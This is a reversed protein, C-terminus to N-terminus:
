FTQYTKQVSIVAIRCSLLALTHKLMIEGILLLEPETMCCSISSWGWDFYYVQPDSPLARCAPTVPLGLLGRILLCNLYVAGQFQSLVSSVSSFLWRFACVSVSILDARSGLSWPLAEAWRAARQGRGEGEKEEMQSGFGWGVCVSVFHGRVLTLVCVVRFEQFSLFLM